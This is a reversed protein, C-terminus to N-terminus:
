PHLNMPELSAASAIMVIQVYMRDHMDFEIRGFTRAVKTFAAQREFVRRFEIKFRRNDPNVM